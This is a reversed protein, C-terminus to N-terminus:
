KKGKPKSKKAAKRNAAKVIDAPVLSFANGEQSFEDLFANWEDLFAEFDDHLDGHIGAVESCLDSMVCDIQEQVDKGIGGCDKPNLLTGSCETGFVDCVSQSWRNQLLEDFLIPTIDVDMKVRLTVSKTKNCRAALKDFKKRLEEIRGLYKGGGKECKIWEKKAESAENAKRSEIAAKVDSDLSLLETYTLAKLDTTM